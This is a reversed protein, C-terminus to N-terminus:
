QPFANNKIKEDNQTKILNCFIHFTYDHSYRATIYRQRQQSFRNCNFFVHLEEEFYSNNYNELCHRCIREYRPIGLFRKTEIYLTHNSCRFRPLSKTVYFPMDISSYKEPKIM